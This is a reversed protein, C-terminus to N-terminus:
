EPFYSLDSELGWIMRDVVFGRVARWSAAIRLREDIGLPAGAPDPLPNCQSLIPSSCYPEAGEYRWLVSMGLQASAASFGSTTALTTDDCLRLVVGGNAPVDHNRRRGPPEDSSRLHEIALQRVRESLLVCDDDFYIQAPAPAAALTAAVVASQIVPKMILRM